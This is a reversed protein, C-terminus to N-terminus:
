SFNVKIKVVRIIGAIIFIMFLLPLYGFKQFITRKADKSIPISYVKSDYEGINIRESESGDPYIVSTIGTNTSRVIPLNFELSRWKALFLHQHPESTDGYWSDNTLNIIMEAQEPTSNLYDRIFNPFLLEYCIASIFSQGGDLKFLTFNTGRAFYSVNTIIESLYKNFPGFPLTEGFPILLQKHYVDKFTGDRGIHFAANYETEFYNQSYTLTTDYGGFFLEAGTLDTMQRLFAPVQNPSTKMLESSMVNPFATEPWIIIDVDKPGLNTLEYYSNLVSEISNDDGTESMIKLFNGINAQVVRVKLDSSNKDIELKFVANSLIFLFVALILIYDRKIEFRRIAVSSAIYFNIFSFGIAGVVTALGIYPALVLWGHGIHAPFQQPILQEFMTLIIPILLAFHGINMRQFLESKKTILLFVLFAWLQPTIFFIFMLGTLYNLPAQINGFESMTYPIWYYGILYYGLNFLLIHKVGKFFTLNKFRQRIGLNNLLIAYAIIPTILFSQSFKTPFGLAYLLGAIFSLLMIQM